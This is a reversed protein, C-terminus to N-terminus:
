PARHVDRSFAVKFRAWRKKTTSQTCVWSLYTALAFSEGPYILSRFQSATFQPVIAMLYKPSGGSDGVSRLGSLEVMMAVKGSFWEQEKLWEMTAIGDRAENIEPDFEGGSGFTGRVSQLVAQYGREALIRGSLGWASNRGYPSRILVIPDKSGNNKAFYHDALLEVGDSMKVRLNREVLVDHTLARPLHGM